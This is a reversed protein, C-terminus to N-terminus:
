QSPMTSQGNFSSSFLLSQPVGGSLIVVVDVNNVVPVFDEVLPVVEVGSIDVNSDDAVEVFVTVIVFAVVLVVNVGGDVDVSTVAPVVVALLLLNVPLVDEVCVNNVFADLLIAVSIVFDGGWHWVLSLHYLQLLDRNQM